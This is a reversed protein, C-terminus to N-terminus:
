LLRGTALTQSVAEQIRRRVAAQEDRETVVEVVWLGTSPQMENVGNVRAYPIQAMAAVDRASVGHPTGFLREFEPRGAPELTSFIGGGDNNVVVITLDPRPEMPGMVLGNQDHILSLDGILAYSPGDHALAAGIASSVLGDIGSAGRNALIRVGDRPRMALDLDRIPMSSGAFLLANSPLAAVLDRALRPESVPTADLLLDIADRARKEAEHWTATWDTPGTTEGPRVSPVVAMATRTPDPHRAARSVVVHREASRIYALAARSLGVRGSTVVLGPRFVRAFAPDGLLSRYTSIAAPGSRHGSTPEALIPWGTAEALGEWDDDEAGDGLVIVGREEAPLEVPDLAPAPPTMVTWPRRDARGELLKDADGSPILPDRFALNVHVPGPDPHLMASWARDVTTRWYPMQGPEAAGMECFWRVHGGYLKIQDITQNAGTARLEPPRDATLLLLPVGSEAAEVVAPLYNAAATGSTCVLAVPRGSRRALGLALFAASREDVRVHLRVDDNNHFALALATSRSGPSVVVEALGCRALEDVVVGALATSGNGSLLAM